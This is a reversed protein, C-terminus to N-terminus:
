EEAQQSEKICNKHYPLYHRFLDTFSGCGWDYGCAPFKLFDVSQNKLNTRLKVGSFTTAGTITGMVLVMALSFLVIKYM